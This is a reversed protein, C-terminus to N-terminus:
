KSRLERVQLGTFVDQITTRAKLWDDVFQICESIYEQESSLSINSEKKALLAFDFLFSLTM